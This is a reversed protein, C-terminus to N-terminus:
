KKEKWDKLVKKMCLSECKPEQRYPCDECENLPGERLRVRYYCNGEGGLECGTRKGSWFYCYRCDKPRDETFKIEQM